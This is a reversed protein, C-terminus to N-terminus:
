VFRTLHPTQSVLFLISQGKRLEDAFMSEISKKSCLEKALDQLSADLPVSKVFQLLRELASGESLANFEIDTLSRYKTPLRVSSSNRKFAMLLTFTLGRPKNHYVGFYKRWVPRPQSRCPDGSISIEVASTLTRAGDENCLTGPMEKESESSADPLDEVDGESPEDGAVGAQGRKRNRLNVLPSSFSKRVVNDMITLNMVDSSGVSMEVYNVGARDYRGLVTNLM